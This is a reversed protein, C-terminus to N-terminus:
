GRVHQNPFLFAGVLALHRHFLSSKELKILYQRLSYEVITNKDETRLWKTCMKRVFAESWHREEFGLLGL